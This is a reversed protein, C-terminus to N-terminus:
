MVSARVLPPLYFVGESAISDANSRPNQMFSNPRVFTYPLDSADIAAEVRAHSRILRCPSAADVGLVSLKVIHRVGADRAADVFATELGAQDPGSPSLLFARDARGLAARLSEPRAFDGM